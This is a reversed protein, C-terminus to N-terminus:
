KKNLQLALAAILSERTIPKSLYGDMGADICKEMDGPLAHATVAIIVAHKGSTKEAERIIKVAEFGDIEPMEVDMLVVDFDNELVSHVAERGNDVITVSHGEKELMKRLLKQNVRNDEAALINLPREPKGPLSNRRAAEEEQDRFACIESACPREFELTFIFSSGQGPVSELFIEGNMLKILKLCIPLGLGTGKVDLSSGGIQIFNEFIHNKKDEPIGIGSDSVIFKVTASSETKGSLVASVTIGGAFTFKIANNILNIMIQRLKVPDGKLYEPINADLSSTISLDKEAASFSLTKVTAELTERLNFVHSAVSMKGAEIKSLDLVSNIIDLLSYGSQRIIELYEKQENNLETASMLETMGIVANMPTRIEHSMDALFESKAKYAKEAEEKAALLDRESKKRDEIDIMLGEFHSISIGNSRRAMLRLEVWLESGDKKRVKYEGSLQSHQGEVMCNHINRRLRSFDDETLIHRLPDKMEYVEKASYGFGSINDSVFRVPYDESNEWLIAVTSSLNIIRKLEKRKEESLEHTLAGLKEAMINFSDGLDEFEDHSDLNIRFNFNGHGIMESALRLHRIPVLTKRILRMSILFTVFCIFAIFAGFYIKLPRGAARAMNEPIAASVVWNGSNYHYKLQFQWSFLLMKEGSSGVFVNKSKQVANIFEQPTSNHADCFSANLISGTSFDIVAMSIDGYESFCDWEGWLFSRNLLGATLLYPKGELGGAAERVIFIDHGSGSVILQGRSEKMHGFAGEPLEPFKVDRAGALVFPEQFEKRVIVSKFPGERSAIEQPVTKFDQAVASCVAKLYADALALRDNIELGKSKAKQRIINEASSISYSNISFFVFSTLGLLPMLLCVVFLTFVRRGVKSLLFFDFGRLRSLIGM